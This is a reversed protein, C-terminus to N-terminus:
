IKRTTETELGSGYWKGAGNPYKKFYRLLSFIQHTVTMFSPRFEVGMVFRKSIQKDSKKWDFM